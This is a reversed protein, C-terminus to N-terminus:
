QTVSLKFIKVASRNLVFINNNQDIRFESSVNEYLEGPIAHLFRGDTDFVSIQLTHGVYVRSQNDVAIGEVTPSLSGGEPRPSFRDVYQGEPSFRYVGQHKDPFSYLVFLNGLGDVALKMQDAFLDDDAISSLLKPVRRVVQGSNTDIWLLTDDFGTDAFAILTDKYVIMHSGLEGNELAFRALLEGSAGDYKLLSRDWLAYVHGDADAAIADPGRKRYADITPQEDITWGSVYQGANDFKQIRLTDYEAAYLNGQGDLAILRVDQFLGPGTGQGAFSSELRAFGPTPSAQITPLRTTLGDTLSKAGPLVNNIVFYAVAGLILLPILATLVVSCGVGGAVKKATASDLTTMPAAPMIVVQPAAQAPRARLEEPVLVMNGCYACKVQLREGEFNIPAGCESCNFSRTERM